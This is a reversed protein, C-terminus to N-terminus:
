PLLVFHEPAIERWQLPEEGTHLAARAVQIRAGMGCQGRGTTRDAGCRRPCLTCGTKGM